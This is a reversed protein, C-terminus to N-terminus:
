SLQCGLFWCDDAMVHNESTLLKTNKNDFVKNSTQKGKSTNM